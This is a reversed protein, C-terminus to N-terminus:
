AICDQRRERDPRRRNFHKIIKVTSDVTHFVKIFTDVGCLVGSDKSLLYYSGREETFISESTVDHGACSQDAEPATEGPDIGSIFRRGLDEELALKILIEENDLPM